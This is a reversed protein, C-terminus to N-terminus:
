DLDCRLMGERKQAAESLECFNLNDSYLLTVIEILVTTYRISTRNQENASNRPGRDHNIRQEQGTSTLRIHLKNFAMCEAAGRNTCAQRLIPIVVQTQLLTSRKEESKVHECYMSLM